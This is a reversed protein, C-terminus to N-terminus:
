VGGEGFARSARANKSPQPVQHIVRLQEAVTPVDQEGLETDVRLLPERCRMCEDYADAAEAIGDRLEKTCGADAREREDIGIADVQGIQLALDQEGGGVDAPRLDVGRTLANGRDIRFHSDLADGLADAQLLKRRERRRGIDNEVAGVVEGRAMRDIAGANGRFLRQDGARRQAEVPLDRYEVRAVAGM